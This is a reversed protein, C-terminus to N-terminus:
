FVRTALGGIPPLTIDKTSCWLVGPSNDSSYLLELRVLKGRRTEATCLAEFLRVSSDDMKWPVAVRRWYLKELNDADVVIQECSIFLFAASIIYKTIKSTRM